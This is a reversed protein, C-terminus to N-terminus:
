FYQPSKSPGQIDKKEPLDPIVPAKKIDDRKVSFMFQEDIYNPFLSPIVMTKEINNTDDIEKLPYIDKVTKDEIKRVLYGLPTFTIDAQIDKNTNDFLASSGIKFKKSGILIQSRSLEYYDTKEETNIVAKATEIENLENFFINILRTGFNTRNKKQQEKKKKEQEEVEQTKEGKAIPKPLIVQIPYGIQESNIRVTNNFVGKICIDKLENGKLTHIFNFDINLKQALIARIKEEFPTFLFARGTLIVGKCNFDTINNKVLKLNIITREAILECTEQIYGYFDSINEIKNLLDILTDITAGSETITRFDYDGSQVNKWQNLVYSNNHHFNYKLRELQAYFRNKIELNHDNLNNLIQEKIFKYATNQDAANARIYHILTEFISYTILNGAGAFGNRYIPNINYINEAGTQIVSFDTTGKGADIIIYHSRQEIQVHNKNMYGLFSADSESITLVEWALIRDKYDHDAFEKFIKNILVQTNKIDNFDYINPVLLVFRIKRKANNYRIFEKKLFSEIIIRLISNYAKNKIDSLKLPVEYGDKNMNFNLQSFSEDYKHAIKLNPLQHFKNQSLGVYGLDKTTSSVLMKLNENIKEVFLADDIDDYEGTLNEKLFFISKFFNTQAEEQYYHSNDDKPIWDKSKYFSLINKFLHEHEVKKDEYSLGFGKQYRKVALQSSESGFDLAMGLFQQPHCWNVTVSGNYQTGNANLEITIILNPFEKKLLNEYNEKVHGSIVFSNNSYNLASLEITNEYIGINENTSTIQPIDKKKAKPVYVDLDDYTLAPANSEEKTKTESTNAKANLIVKLENGKLLYSTTFDSSTLDKKGLILSKISADKLLSLINFQIKEPVEILYSSSVQLDKERLPLNIVRRDNVVLPIMYYNM